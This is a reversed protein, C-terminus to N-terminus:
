TRCGLGEFGDFKTLIITDLPKPHKEEGYGPLWDVFVDMLTEVVKNPNQRVYVVALDKETSYTIEKFDTDFDEDKLYDWFNESSGSRVPNKKLFENLSIEGNKNFREQVERDFKVLACPDCYFITKDPIKLMEEEWEPGLPLEGLGNRGWCRKMQNAIAQDLRYQLRKEIDNLNENNNYDEGPYWERLNKLEKKSFPVDIPILGEGKGTLTITAVVPACFSGWVETGLIPVKTYASMTKKLLCWFYGEGLGKMLALIASYFKITVFFVIAFAIIGVFTSALIAKKNRM